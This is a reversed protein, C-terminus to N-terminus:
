FGYFYRILSNLPSWHILRSDSLKKYLLISVNIKIYFYIDTEKNNGSEGSIRFIIFFFCHSKDYPWGMSDMMLIGMLTGILIGILIWMLIWMLLGMLTEMMIGILNGYFNGIFNRDFNGDLGMLIGILIGMLIGM